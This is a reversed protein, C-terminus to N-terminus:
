IHILSLISVSKSFDGLNVIQRYSPALECSGFEDSTSATQHPTDGDGGVPYPGRNFVRDLLKVRGLIHDFTVTHARGWQWRDPDDGLRARLELVAQALSASKLEAWTTFGTGELWTPDESQLIRLLISSARGPYASGALGGAPGGVYLNLLPGLRAAFLNRLLRERLLRYITAPVSNATLRCDWRRLHALARVAFPETPEIEGLLAVLQRAAESSFDMQLAECDEITLKEKSRIVEEIRMARYGDIWDRSIVHPYDDGVVCNNASIVYGSPPNFVSPMEDPPIVGDWDYRGDWGPVPALGGDAHRKPVVGSLQYGINGARDAYVFNLPLGWDGLARRFEDWTSARNLGMAGRVTHHPQLLTSALALVRTEGPLLPTLIPGHRTESVEDFIPEPRGRVPIMEAHTRLPAWGSPTEYEGANNPNLREVFLDQTDVMSATIGWALHQNHGILVAPLGPMTAGTVDLGGGVLHAEYWISPAQPRLHPDSALLASGTASREPAVAWANSLGGSFLGLERQISQLGALLDDTAGAYGAGPATTVPHGAAYGPDLAATGAPGLREVLLGRFWENDWNGSLYWSMAKAWALSDSVTWPRPRFRLIRFELPLRHPHIALFGNVGAVYAEIAAREDPELLAEEDDAIRALGLRRMFRDFLVPPEGFIESLRGRALRRQVEMQWLRDQAHVYGLAYYVDHVPGAYLHPVGARDRVIEVDTRVGPPSVLGDLATQPQRLALRYLEAGGLTAVGLGTLVRNIASM